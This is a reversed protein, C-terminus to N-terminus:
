YRVVWVLGARGPGARGPGARSTGQCEGGVAIARLPLTTWGSRTSGELSRKVVNALNELREVAALRPSV